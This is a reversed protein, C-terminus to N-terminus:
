GDGRGEKTPSTAARKPAAAPAAKKLEILDKYVQFVAKAFGAQADPGSNYADAKLVDYPNYVGDRKSPDVRSVDGGDAARHVQGSKWTVNATRIGLNLVSSEKEKLAPGDSVPIDKIASHFYDDPSTVEAIKAVLDHGSLPVKIGLDAAVISAIDDINAKHVIRAVRRQLSRRQTSTLPGTGGEVTHLLEPMAKFAIPGAASAGGGGEKFEAGARLAASQFVKFIRPRASGDLGASRAALVSSEHAVGDAHMANREDFSPARLARHATDVLGDRLRLTSARAAVGTGVRKLPGGSLITRADRSPTATPNLTGTNTAWAPQGLLSTAMVLTLLSLVRPLSRFIGIEKLM